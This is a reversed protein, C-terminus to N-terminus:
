LDTYGLGEIYVKCLECPCNDPKWSKISHKFLDLSQCKKLSEPLMTNWVIPGFSRLSRDGRKVTNVNPRLFSTGSRTERGIECFIDRMFPPSLEHKVKYMEIAVQHINRHHFCLSNDKSLLEEFTSNYDQYVLRLAREHIRNIKTNMTRSCFMWVLPCYSFQSEIFTKMILHRKPFPLFPVIRALASVKQNVKKCLTRLHVDFSLKKDVIMGLLNESQSEWIKVDGVRVWLHEHTGCTLFHCKDQNLKMYNNEFWIIASLTNDELEHLLDEMKISCATLTTDDAFNCVHADVFQFFMDNIYINFLFPGLVSGQPVGCLLDEWSSFSSNVKTRQRRDSLYSFVIQLASDSFGYAGLKAILLEHNITDFAKSLDMLVAGYLGGNEDLCKKLREVMATLAYQSNYGKRYGCLWKSLFEEIFPKMQNLMLREFIKSVVPLLSVPRYNEKYITELKKHLPTIDAVKLEVAFKKNKIIEDNWIEALVKAVIDGAEKLRKVPINMFTGSKKDNLANIEILMEAAGVESFAFSSSISVNKKIDLISPHNEFKKVAREVPDSINTCDTLLSKNESIALSSVTTIFYNNFKEAIEQDETIIDNNEVLTIKQKGIVSKSFLPKMTDFFKKNDTYNKLDLNGWYKIMEKKLLRNTYNKQKKFAKNAEDTRLKHYKNKLFSRRMIAKRLVKTMYPKDNARVVRQKIPAHKELVTLFIHEFHAYGLVIAKSLENRLDRRFEILNFKKYDRYYIMKPKAKPFTTKMVTVVMRHFDSLGTAITGTNQFSQPSNTLFLDICSPNDQSKFCTPEQVLNKVNHEFVFDSLVENTEETNFDGALLFKDYTSYKDLALCVQNFYEETSVGFEPHDSRYSGFFLLKTKRLNVEIFLGEIPVTFNHKNLLKSPIDERVYIMVGGGNRNRDLRYPQSYGDILFQGAPYSADLKTEQITIIDLNKGIIEKLLEFKPALSNINLTGIIIKNVNKVRIQQLIRDAAEQDGDQDAESSFSIEQDSPDLSINPTDLNDIPPTADFISLANDSLNNEYATPIHNLPLDLVIQSHDSSENTSLM